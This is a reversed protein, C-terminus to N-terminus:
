NKGNGSITHGIELRKYSYPGARTKKHIELLALAVKRAFEVPFFVMGDNGAGDQDYQTIVIGEGESEIETRSVRPILERNM